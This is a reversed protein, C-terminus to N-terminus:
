RAEGIEKRHKQWVCAETERGARGKRRQDKGLACPSLAFLKPIVGKEGARGRGDGEKESIDGAGSAAVAGM